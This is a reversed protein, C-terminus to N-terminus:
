MSQCEGDAPNFSFGPGCNLCDTANCRQCISGFRAACAATSLPSLKTLLIVARAPAPSFAGCVDVSVAKPRRRIMTTATRVSAPRVCLSTASTACLRAPSADSLRGARGRPSLRDQPDMGAMHSACLGRSIVHLGHKPTILVRQSYLVQQKAIRRCCMGTPESPNVTITVTSTSTQTEV